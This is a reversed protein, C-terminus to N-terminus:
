DGGTLSRAYNDFLEACKLKSEIRIVHERQKSNLTQKFFSAINNSVVEIDSDSMRHGTGFIPKTAMPETPRLLRMNQSHYAFGLFVICEARQMEAAIPAIVDAAALQETYTKISEALAVCNIRTAGFPVQSLDGVVGYPHIIQLGGVIAVAEEFRISYARQLANILFHEICRDYNFVIFSVQDFIDAVNDRPIGRSLMYMFKVFWTDALREADFKDVGEHRNIFLKSSREAEVIAQVIAAKGYLNVYPDNRHQDLFDDISQAFAIGDRIRFAAPQFQNADQRRLHVIHSYLNHDGTGVPDFGREFRIDMKAGINRALQTGVPFDVEASAGAGVIFLTRRNFV